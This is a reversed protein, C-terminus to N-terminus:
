EFNKEEEDYLWCAVKHNGNINFLPSSDVYVNKASSKQVDLVLVVDWQCILFYYM